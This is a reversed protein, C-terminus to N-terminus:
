QKMKGNITIDKSRHVTSTTGWRKGARRKRYVTVDNVLNQFIRVFCGKACTYLEICTIGTTGGGEGRAVATVM